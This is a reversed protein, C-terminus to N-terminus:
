KEKPKNKSGKPRGLRKKIPLEEEVKQVEVVEVEKPKNKSGKPRGRKRKIVIPEETPEERFKIEKPEVEPELQIKDLENISEEIVVEYDNSNREYILESIVFELESDERSKLEQLLSNVLGKSSNVSLVGMSELNIGWDEYVEFLIEILKFLEELAIKSSMNNNLVRHQIYSNVISIDTKREDRNKPIKTPDHNLKNRKLMEYFYMVIDESNRIKSVDVKVLDEELRTIKHGLSQLQLIMEEIKIDDTDDLKFVGYGNQHLCEICYQIKDKKSQNFLLSSKRKM